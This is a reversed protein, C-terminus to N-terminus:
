DESEDDTYSEMVTTNLLDFLPICDDSYSKVKDACARNLCDIWPEHDPLQYSFGNSKHISDYISPAFRRYFEAMPTPLEIYGSIENNINSVTLVTYYETVEKDFISFDLCVEQSLTFRYTVYAIVPEFLTKWVKKATSRLELLDIVKEQFDLDSAFPGHEQIDVEDHSIITTTQYSWYEQQTDLNEVRRIFTNKERLKGFAYEYYTERIRAIPTHKLTSLEFGFKKLVNPSPYLYTRSFSHNLQSIESIPVLLCATYAKPLCNNGVKKSLNHEEPQAFQCFQM